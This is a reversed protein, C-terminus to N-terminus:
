VSRYGEAYADWPSAVGALYPFAGVSEEAWVQEPGATAGASIAFYPTMAAERQYTLTEGEVEQAVKQLLTYNEEFDEGWRQEMAERTVYM